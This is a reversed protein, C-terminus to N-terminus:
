KINMDVLMALARRNLIQKFFRLYKSHNRDIAIVHFCNQFIELGFGKSQM